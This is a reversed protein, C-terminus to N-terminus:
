ESYDRLHTAEITRYWRLFATTDEAIAEEGVEELQSDHQSAAFAAAAAAIATAAAADDVCDVRMLLEAWSAEEGVACRLAHMSVSTHVQTHPTPRHDLTLKGPPLKPSCASNTTDGLSSSRAHASPPLFAASLTEAPAGDLPSAIANSSSPDGGHRRHSYAKSITMVAYELSSGVGVTTVVVLLLTTAVLLDKNDRCHKRWVDGDCPISMALAFAIAGRLGALWLILQQGLNMRDARRRSRNTLFSFPFVFAARSLGTSLLGFFAFSFNWSRHGFGLAAVVGLYAFACKDCLLAITQVFLRISLRSQTSLNYTNFHCLMAGCAFLSVVGSLELVEATGFAMYATLLTLAVEYQPLERLKSHKFSFCCLGGIGVGFVLSGMLVMVFDAIIDTVGANLIVDKNDSFFFKFVSRTLAISVADNLISEGMLISVLNSNVVTSQVRPRVAAVAAATAAAEVMDGAAAANSDSSSSSNNNTCPASPSPADEHAELPPDTYSCTTHATSPGEGGGQQRDILQRRSCRTERLPSAAPSATPSGSSASLSATTAYVLQGGGQVVQQGGYRAVSRLHVLTNKKTKTFFRPSNLLNMVAVTDTASILAAFALLFARVKHPPGQLGLDAVHENVAHLGLYILVTSMLTGVFAFLLVPAGNRMFDYQSVSLGADLVIPPLLVLYFFQPDFYLGSLAGGPAGGGGVSSAQPSSFPAASSARSGWGGGAAAGSEGAEASATLATYIRILLGFIAGVLMAGASDPLHKIQQTHALYGSCCCLLLCSSLVLLNSTSFASHEPVRSASPSATSSSSSSSISSSDDPVSRGGRAQMPASSDAVAAPPAAPAAASSAPAGANTSRTDGEGKPPGTGGDLGFFPPLHLLSKRPPLGGEPPGEDANPLGGTGEFGAPPSAEGAAAPIWLELVSPFSCEAAPHLLLAAAAAAAAATPRRM